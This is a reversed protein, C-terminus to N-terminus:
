LLGLTSVILAANIQIKLCFVAYSISPHSSNLRTSKRDRERHPVDPDSPSGSRGRGPRAANKKELLLRCVLHVPSQLESTHEESRGQLDRAQARGPRVEESGDQGPHEEQEQRHHLLPRYRGLLDPPDQRTQKGHETSRFLTTYPFLTSGRLLTTM